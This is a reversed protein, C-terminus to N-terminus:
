AVENSFPTSSISDRPARPRRQSAQRELLAACDAELPQVSSPPRGWVTTAADSMLAHATPDCLVRTAEIGEGVVCGERVVLAGVPVVGNALAAGALALCRRMFREDEDTVAHTREM